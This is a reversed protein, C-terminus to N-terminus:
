LNPTFWSPPTHRSPSHDEPITYHQITNDTLSFVGLYHFNWRGFAFYICNGGLRAKDNHNTSIPIFLKTTKSFFFSRDGLESVQAWRPPGNIRELKFVQFAEGSIDRWRKPPLPIYFDPYDERLSSSFPHSVLVSIM